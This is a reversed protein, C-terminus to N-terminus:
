LWSDVITAGGGGFSGRGGKVMPTMSVREEWRWGDKKTSTTTNTDGVGVTLDQKTKEAATAARAAKVRVDAFRHRANFVFLFALSRL